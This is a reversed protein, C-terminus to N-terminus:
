RCAGSAVWHSAAPHGGQPIAEGSPGYLCPPLAARGEAPPSLLSEPICYQLTLPASDDLWFLLSGARDAALPM